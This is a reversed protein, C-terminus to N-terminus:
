PDHRIATYTGRYQVLLTQGMLTVNAIYERAYPQSSSCGPEELFRAQVGPMIWSAFLMTHHDNNIADGPLLDLASIAHSVSTDYPALTATTHGPAALGWAWSVLGSCDSRYPDWEANDPRTCTSSCATDADAKHNAAQCYPLKADVWEQARDVATPDGLPTMMTGADPGADSGPDVNGDVAGTCAAVACLAAALSFRAVV